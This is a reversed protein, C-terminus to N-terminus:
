EQFEDTARSLEEGEASSRRSNAATAVRLRAPATNTTGSDSMGSDDDATAIKLYQGAGGESRFRGRDGSGTRSPAVM